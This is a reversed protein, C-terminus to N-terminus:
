TKSTVPLSTINAESNARELIGSKSAGNPPAIASLNLRLSKITMKSKELLAIIKMKISSSDTIRLEITRMPTTITKNDTMLAKYVGATVALM